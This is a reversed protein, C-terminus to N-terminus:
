QRKSALIIKNDRLYNHCEVCRVTLAVYCMAARSADKAKAANEILDCARRFDRSQQQYEETQIVKWGAEMSLLKIARANKAIKDHDEMALGELIEKARDLKRHMLPVVERDAIVKKADTRQQLLPFQKETDQKQTAPPEANASLVVLAFIAASSVLIRRKSKRSLEQM